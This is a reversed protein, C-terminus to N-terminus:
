IDLHLITWVPLRFFDNDIVVTQSKCELIISKFRPFLQFTFFPPFEGGEVTPINVVNPTLKKGANTHTMM